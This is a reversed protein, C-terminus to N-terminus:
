ENGGNTEVSPSGDVLNSGEEINAALEDKAACAVVMVGVNNDNDNSPPYVVSGNEFCKQILGRLNHCATTSYGEVQHYKCFNNGKKEGESIEYKAELASIVNAVVLAEFWREINAM